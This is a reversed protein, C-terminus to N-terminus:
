AKSYGGAAAGALFVENHFVLFAVLGSSVLGHLRISVSM